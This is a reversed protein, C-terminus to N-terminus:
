DPISQIKGLAIAVKRVDADKGVFVGLVDDPFIATM